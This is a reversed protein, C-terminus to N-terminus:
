LSACRLYRSISNSTAPRRISSGATRAITSSARVSRAAIKLRNMWGASGVACSREDGALAGVVAIEGGSGAGGVVCADPRGTSRGTGSGGTVSPTVSSCIPRPM